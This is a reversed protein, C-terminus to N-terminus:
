AGKEQPAQNATDSNELKARKSKRWNRVKWVAPAFLGMLFGTLLAIALLAALPLQITTFVFEFSTEELNQFVVIVMLVLLLGFVILRLQKM